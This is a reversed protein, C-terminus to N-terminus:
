GPRVAQVLWASGRFLVGDSTEHARLSAHLHRWRRREAPTTSIM